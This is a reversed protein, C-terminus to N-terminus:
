NDSNYIVDFTMNDVNDITYGFSLTTQAGTLLIDNYEVEITDVTGEKDTIEIIFTQIDLDSDSINTITVNIQGDEEVTDFQLRSSDEEEVEVDEFIITKTESEVTDNDDQDYFFLLLAFVVAGVIILGIMILFIIKRNKKTKEKM